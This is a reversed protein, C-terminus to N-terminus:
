HSAAFREYVYYAGVGLAFSVVISTGFLVELGLLINDGMGPGCGGVVHGCDSVNLTKM